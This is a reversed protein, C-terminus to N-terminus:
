IGIQIGKKFMELRNPKVRYDDFLSKWENYPWHISKPNEKFYDIAAAKLSDWLGQERLNIGELCFLMIYLRGKEAKWKEEPTSVLLREKRQRAMEKARDNAQRVLESSSQGHAYEFGRIDKMLGSKGIETIVFRENPRADKWLAEVREAVDDSIALSETKKTESDYIKIRAM